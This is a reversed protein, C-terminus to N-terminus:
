LYNKEAAEPDIECCIKEFGLDMAAIINKLGKLIEEEDDVIMLKIM